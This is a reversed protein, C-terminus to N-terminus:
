QPKYDDRLIVAIPADQTNEATGEVVNSIGLRKGIEQAATRAEPSSFYVTSKAPEANEYIGPIVEVATFGGNTLKESAGKALGDTNTGNAVTVRTTFDVNGSPSASASPKASAAGAKNNASDANKDANKNGGAQGGQAPQSSSVADSSGSGGSGNLFLTVAGWALAPVIVIIALLPVWSRWRPVQARHVGVPVPGDDDGVDFEDEPYDYNSVSM